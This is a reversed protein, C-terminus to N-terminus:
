KYRKLAEFTGSINKEQMDTIPELERWNNENIWRYEDHEDSLVIEDGEKTHCLYTIEIAKTGPRDERTFESVRIPYEIEVDLGTEEAVERKAAEELSVDIDEVKGGIGTWYGSLFEEQKSRRVVLLENNPNFVAASAMLVINM